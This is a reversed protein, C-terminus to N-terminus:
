APHPPAELRLEKVIEEAADDRSPGYGTGVLMEYYAHQFCGALFLRASAVPDVEASVRGIQREAAIYASLPEIEPMPGLGSVRVAERYRLTVRASTFAPLAVSQVEVYYDIGALAIPLLNDNVRGKGVLYDLDNLIRLWVPLRDQLLALFAGVARGGTTDRLLGDDRKMSAAMHLVRLRTDQSRQHPDRPYPDLSPTAM